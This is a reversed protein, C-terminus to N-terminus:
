KAPIGKVITRPEVNITVVAGAAVIAGTGITVGDLIRAGAGIWVNDEITIGKNTNGQQNIPIQKNNFNHNSPVISVHMAILVNNGIKLGGHGNLVTFSNIYVNNGMEIHGGWLKLVAYDDVFCSHGMKIFSGDLKMIVGHGIKSQSGITLQANSNAFTIEVRKGWSVNGPTKIRTTKYRCIILLKNIILQIHRFM